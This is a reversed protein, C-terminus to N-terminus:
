KELLSIKIKIKNKLDVFYVQNKTVKYQIKSDKLTINQIFGNDKYIINHKDFIPKKHIINKILKDPYSISLFKKNFRDYGMCRSDICINSGLKITSVVSSASFLKIITKNSYRDIFGTDLFIFNSKAKVLIKYSNTSTYTSFGCSVFVLAIFIYFSAKVLRNM